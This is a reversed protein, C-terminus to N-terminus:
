PLRHAVRYRGLLRQSRTLSHSNPCQTGLPLDKSRQETSILLMSPITTTRNEEYCCNTRVKCFGPVRDIGFNDGMIESESSQNLLWCTTAKTDWKQLVQNVARCKHTNSKVPTTLVAGFWSFHADHLSVASPFCRLYSIARETLARSKNDLNNHTKQKFM